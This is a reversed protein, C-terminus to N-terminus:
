HPDHTGDLTSRREMEYNLSVAASCTSKSYPWNEKCQSCEWGGACTCIYDNNWIFVTNPSSKYHHYGSYNYSAICVQYCYKNEQGALKYGCTLVHNKMEQIIEQVSRPQVDSFNEVLALREVWGLATWTRPEKDNPISRAAAQRVFSDVLRLRAEAEQETLSIVSSSSTFVTEISM